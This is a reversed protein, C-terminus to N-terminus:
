RKGIKTQKARKKKSPGFRWKRFRGRKLFVWSWCESNGRACPIGKRRGVLQPVPNSHGMQKSGRARSSSAPLPLNGVQCFGKRLLRWANSFSLVVSTTLPPYGGFKDVRSHPHTSIGNFPVSGSVQRPTTRFTPLPGPSM